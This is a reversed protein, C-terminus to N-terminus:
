PLAHSDSGVRRRVLLVLKALEAPVEGEDASVEVLTGPHGDRQDVRGGLLRVLSLEGDLLGVSQPHAGM